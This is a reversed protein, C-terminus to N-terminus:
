PAKKRVFSLDPRLVCTGEKQSRLINKIPGEGFELRRARKEAEKETDAFVAILYKPVDGGIVVKWTRFCVPGSSSAQNRAIKGVHEEFDRENPAMVGFLYFYVAGYGAISEKGKPLFSCDSLYRHLSEITFNLTSLFPLLANASLSGYYGERMQMWDKLGNYDKVHALYIYQSSDAERQAFTCFPGRKAYTEFGELLEKKYKEYADGKGFKVFDQEILWLDGEEACVGAAGICLLLIGTFFGRLGM